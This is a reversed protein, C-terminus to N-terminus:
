FLCVWRGLADANPRVRFGGHNCKAMVGQNCEAMVGQNCEAMVKFKPVFQGM